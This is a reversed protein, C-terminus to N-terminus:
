PFLERLKATTVPGVTGTQQINNAKQFDKVAQITINGMYGTSPINSPFTGFHKLCDQLSTTSGSFTPKSAKNADFKFNLPYRSLFCRKNFFDRSVLRRHGFRGKVEASDEIVLYEIGNFLTFDVAALSHRYIKYQGKDVPIPNGFWEGSGGFEFWMMVAKQTNQITSAVTDFDLPTEVWNVSIAFEEAVGKIYKIDRLSNMEWETLGESPYLEETPLGSGAINIANDIGMGEVKPTRQRYIWGPSFKIKRDTKLYYLVQAIKAITFAVCASSSYQYQPSFTRWDDPSKEIWTVSSAKAVVENFEVVNTQPIVKDTIGLFQVKEQLGLLRKIFDIM